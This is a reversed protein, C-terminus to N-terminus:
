KKLSPFTANIKEAIDTNGSINIKMGYALVIILAILSFPCCVIVGLLIISLPLDLYTHNNKSLTFTTAHLKKIFTKLGECKASKNTNSYSFSTQTKNAKELLLLAEVTDGNSQELAEKAESYSVNVRQMILDIQELSINSM